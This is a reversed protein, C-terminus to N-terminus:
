PEQIEMQTHFLTVMNGGLEVANDLAKLYVEGGRESAQYATLSNKGLKEKWFHALVTHVSGTVPDENIGIWPCFSRLLFDYPAHDSRSTVVVEKLVASSSQVLRSYDPSLARLTLTNWSL